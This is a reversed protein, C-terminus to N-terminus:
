LRTKKSAVYVIAGGAVLSVYSITRYLGTMALAASPAYGRLRLAGALLPELGLGGPTLPVATIFAQLLSFFIVMPLPLREGLALGVLWFATGEALWALVSLGLLPGFRGFSLVLAGSFRIYIEGLRNPLVRELHAGYRAFGVLGVVLGLVVTGGAAFLDFLMCGMDGLRVGRAACALAGGEVGRALVDGYTALGTAVMLVTLVILDLAREAVITGMSTSWAIGGVRRLLWGRYVDGLKAPVLSNVFWSLYIIEALDRRRPLRDRAVGANRLLLAWRLGRIPFAAYYAALAALYLWPNARRIRAGAEALTRPDQWYLFVGLLAAAVLFSLVARPSALRRGLAPPGDPAPPPDVLPAIPGAQSV